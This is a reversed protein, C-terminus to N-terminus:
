AVVREDWEVHHGHLWPQETGAAHKLVLPLVVGRALRSLPDVGRLRSAKRGEAVVREVRPRRQAEYAAFASERPLDRLCRALVVADEIAMSAGQGTAPSTVHAADGVLVVRDDHWVPVSPLEHTTWATLRHPTAAVLDLLPSDDAAFLRRCRARWEADPVAALEGERPEDRRPPNAFWWTEGGETAIWGSFARRGFTMTMVGPVAGPPVHRANGGTNIAPVFRPRPAAPDLLGRVRSHVGDAGVLLDGRATSGDAFVAVVGDGEHRLSELRHGHRVEIGRRAAEGHLARHLEARKVSRGGPGGPLPRGTPIEGLVRGGAARFRIAPTAVGLEAVEEVGIARLADLGNVQLGLWSGVDGAPEGYAEHVVAEIGARQLAMAAVPGAIGAGIVLATTM